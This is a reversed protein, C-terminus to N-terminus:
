FFIVGVGVERREAIDLMAGHVGVPAGAIIEADAHEIELVIRQQAFRQAGFLDLITEEAVPARVGALGEDPDMEIAEDLLVAEVEDVDCAGAVARGCSEGVAIEFADVGLDIWGDRLVKFAQLFEELLEREGSADAAM